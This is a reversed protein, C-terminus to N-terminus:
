QPLYNTDREQQRRPVFWLFSRLRSVHLLSGVLILYLVPVLNAMVLILYLFPVLNAMVLNLYLFPVLNLMLM